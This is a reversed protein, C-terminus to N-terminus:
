WRRQWLAAFVGSNIAESLVPEMTFNRVPGDHAMLILISAEVKGPPNEKQDTGKEKKADRYSVTIDHEGQGAKNKKCTTDGKEDGQETM